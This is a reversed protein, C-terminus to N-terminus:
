GSAAGRPRIAARPPTDIVTSGVLAGFGLLHLVFGTAHGYEWRPRLQTWLEPRDEPAAAAVEVNVPQVLAVWSAFSAGLLGAGLAAWRFPRRHRRLLVAVATAAGISAVFLPGGVVAFYKYLSGNVRTYLEPDLSLKQPLELVHGATMALAVAALVTALTRLTRLMRAFIPGPAAPAM